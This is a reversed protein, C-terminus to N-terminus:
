FSVRHIGPPIFIDSLLHTSNVPGGFTMVQVLDFVKFTDIVGLTLVSIILRNRADPAYDQLVEYDRKCRRDSASEYIDQSIGNLGAVLLIM